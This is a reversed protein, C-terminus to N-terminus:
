FGISISEHRPPFVPPEAVGFLAAVTLFSPRISITATRENNMTQPFCIEADTELADQRTNQRCRRAAAGRERQCRSLPSYPFTTTLTVGNSSSDLNEVKGELACILDMAMENIITSRTPRAPPIPRGAARQGEVTAPQQQQLRVRGNASRERLTRPHRWQVPQRTLGATAVARAQM